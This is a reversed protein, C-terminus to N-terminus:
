KGGDDVFWRQNSGMPDKDKIVGVIVGKSVFMDLPDFSAPTQTVCYLKDPGYM